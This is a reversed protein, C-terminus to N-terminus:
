GECEKVAEKIMGEFDFEKLEKVAAAYAAGCETDDLAAQIADTDRKIAADMSKKTEADPKMLPKNLNGCTESDARHVKRPIVIAM